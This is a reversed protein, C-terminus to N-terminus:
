KHHKVKSSGGVFRKLCRWSLHLEIFLYWIPAVILLMTLIKTFLLMAQHMGLVFFMRHRYAHTDRKLLLATALFLATFYAFAELAFGTACLLLLVFGNLQNLSNSLDLGNSHKFSYGLHNVRKDTCVILAHKNPVVLLAAENERCHMQDAMYKLWPWTSEVDPCLTGLFKVCHEPQGNSWLRLLLDPDLLVGAKVYLAHNTQAQGWIFNPQQKLTIGLQTAEPLCADVAEKSAHSVCVYVGKLRSYSLGFVSNITLQIDSCSSEDNADIFVDVNKFDFGLARHSLAYRKRKTAFLKLLRVLFLLQLPVLM